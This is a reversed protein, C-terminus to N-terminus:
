AAVKEFADLISAANEPQWLFRQGARANPMQSGPPIGAAAYSGTMTPPENTLMKCMIVPVGMFWALWMPGSPIGFNMAAGAYLAARPLVKCGAEPDTEFGEIERDAKTGDPILVVRYGTRELERAVVRWENLNTTREVWWGTNRETITVYKAGYKARAAAILDPPARFPYIGQRAIKTLTRLGIPYEGRGFFQREPPVDGLIAPRGCSPLLIPMPLVINELWRTREEKGYPPLADNRFGDRPGPLVAVTLNGPGVGKSICWSEAVLLFDVFNFSPPNKALDYYATGTM